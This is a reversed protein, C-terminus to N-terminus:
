SKTQEWKNIVPNAYMELLLGQYDEPCSQLRASFQECYHCLSDSGTIERYLPEDHIFLAHYNSDFLEYNELIQRDLEAAVDDVDEFDAASLTDGIRLVVKGKYEGLGKVLSLLDEGPPKEYHGTSRRIHLEKAKMQDCPDFEYAVSVPTINLKALLEPIPIKRAALTLMKIIAPDTKDIGDKARGEAQAIWISEGSVLSEHIYSSTEKLAAYLKKPNQEQRPIFFSKNLRMLDTAFPMQILNDGVAIRVTELDSLYLAYDVLMSDVAIDRHNGIFLYGKGPTLKEVGEFCFETMTTEVLRTAYHSVAEQFSRIDKVPRLQRRLVGAILLRVLPAAVKSLLPARYRGLFDLFERDHLLREKVEPVQDDSFPKVVEFRESM